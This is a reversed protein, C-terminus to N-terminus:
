ARNRMHRAVAAFRDQLSARFAEDEVVDQLAARMCGMWAAAAADDIPLHMHRMRLRPHGYEQWYLPPGGLWGSLFAALKHKDFTLDDDHLARIAQADPRTDMHHYFREVLRVVADQGGIRDHDTQETLPGGIRLTPM